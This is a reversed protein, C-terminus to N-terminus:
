RRTREVHLPEEVVVSSGATLSATSVAVANLVVSQVLGESAM